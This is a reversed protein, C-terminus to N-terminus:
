EVLERGLRQYERFETIEREAKPVSALGFSVTVSNAPAPSRNM